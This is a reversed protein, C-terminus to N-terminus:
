SKNMPCEDDACHYCNKPEDEWDSCCAYTHPDNWDELEDSERIAVGHKPIDNISENEEKLQKQYDPDNEPDSRKALAKRYISIINDFTGTNDFFVCNFDRRPHFVNKDKFRQQEYAYCRTKGKFTFLFSCNKCKEDPSESQSAKRYNNFYVYQEVSNLKKKNTKM